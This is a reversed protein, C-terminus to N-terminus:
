DKPDDSGTRESPTPDSTKLRKPLHFTLGRGDRATQVLVPDRTGAM